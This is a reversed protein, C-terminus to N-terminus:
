SAAPPGRLLAPRDPSWLTKIYAPEDHTLKYFQGLQRQVAADRPRQEALLELTQGAKPLNGAQEYLGELLFLTRQRRDGTLFKQELMQRAEVTKGDRELMAIREADGPLLLYGVVTAATFLLTMVFIHARVPSRAFVRGQLDDIRRRSASLTSIASPTTSSM